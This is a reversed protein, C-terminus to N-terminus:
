LQQMLNQLKAWTCCLTSRVLFGQSTAFSKIELCSHSSELLTRFSLSPSPSQQDQADLESSFSLAALPESHLLVPKKLLINSQM